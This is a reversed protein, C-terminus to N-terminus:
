VGEESVSGGAVDDNALAVAEVPVVTTLESFALEVVDDDDADEETPPPEAPEEEDDL